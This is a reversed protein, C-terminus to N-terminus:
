VFLCSVLAAKHPVVAKEHYTYWIAALGWENCDKPVIRQESAVDQLGSGSDFWPLHLQLGGCLREAM